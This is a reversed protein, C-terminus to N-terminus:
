RSSCASGRPSRWRTSSSTSATARCGAHRVRAYKLLAYLISNGEISATPRSRASTAVALARHRAASDRRRARRDSRRRRRRVARPSRRDAQEDPDGRRAHRALHVAAAPHLVAAVRRRRPPARRHLPRVRPVHLIAMLTAGFAVGGHQADDDRLVRRVTRRPDRHRPPHDDRARLRHCSRGGRM